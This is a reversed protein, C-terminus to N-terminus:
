DARAYERGERLELSAQHQLALSGPDDLRLLFPFVPSFDFYLPSISVSSSPNSAPRSTELETSTTACFFKVSGSTNMSSGAM